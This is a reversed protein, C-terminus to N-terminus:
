RTSAGVRQCPHFPPERITRQELTQSSNASTNAGPRDVTLRIPYLSQTYTATSSSMSAGSPNMAGCAVRLRVPLKRSGFGLRRYQMRHEVLAYEGSFPPSQDSSAHDLLEKGAPRHDASESPRPHFPTSAFSARSRAIKAGSM